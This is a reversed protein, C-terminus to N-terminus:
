MENTALPFYQAKIPQMYFCLSKIFLEYTIIPATSNMTPRFISVHKCRTYALQEHEHDLMMKPTPAILWAHNEFQKEQVNTIELNHGREFSIRSVDLHLKYLVARAM